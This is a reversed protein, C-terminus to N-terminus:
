GGLSTTAGAPQAARGSTEGDPWLAASSIEQQQPHVPAQRATLPYYTKLILKLTLPLIGDMAKGLRRKLNDMYVPPIHLPKLPYEEEPCNDAACNHCRILWVVEIRCNDLEIQMFIKTKKERM